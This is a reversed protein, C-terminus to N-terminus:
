IICACGQCARKLGSACMSAIVSQAAALTAERLQRFKDSFLDLGRRAGSCFIDDQSRDLVMEAIEKKCHMCTNRLNRALAMLKSADGGAADIQTKAWGHYRALAQLTIKYFKGLLPALYTGDDWLSTRLIGLMADSTQDASRLADELSECVSQFVLAAYVPLSWSALLEDRVACFVTRQRRGVCLGEIVGCFDVTTSYNAHFTSKIGPMFVGRPLSRMLERLISNALFDFADVMGEAPDGAIDLLLSLHDVVFSLTTRYIKGLDHASGVTSRIHTREELFPRFVERAVIEEAADCRDLVVYARLCNTLAGRDAMAASAGYMHDPVIEAAFAQELANLVVRRGNDLHSTLAPNSAPFSELTVDLEALATALRLVEAASTGKSVGADDEDDSTGSDRTADTLSIDSARATDQQLRKTDILAVLARRKEANVAIKDAASRLESTEDMLSSRVTKVRRMLDRLPVLLADVVEDVSVLSASLKLFADYDRNIIHVLEEDFKSVQSSLQVKLDDISVFEKARRAAVFSEVSFNEDSLEQLLSSSSLASVEEM